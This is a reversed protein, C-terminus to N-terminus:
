TNRHAHIHYQTNFCFYLIIEVIVMGVVGLSYSCTSTLSTIKNKKM